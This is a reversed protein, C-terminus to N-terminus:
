SLIAVQYIGTYGIDTFVACAEPPQKKNQLALNRALEM